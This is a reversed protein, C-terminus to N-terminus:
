DFRPVGPVTLSDAEFGLTFCSQPLCSTNVESRRHWGRQGETDVEIELTQRPGGCTDACVHM